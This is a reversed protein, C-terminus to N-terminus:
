HAARFNLALATKVPHLDMDARTPFSVAYFWAIVILATALAFAFLMGKRPFISPFEVSQKPLFEPWRGLERRAASVDDLFPDTLRPRHNDNAPITTRLRLDRRRLEDFYSPEMLRVKTTQPDSSISPM